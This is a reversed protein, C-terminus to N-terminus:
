YANGVSRNGSRELDYAGFTGVYYGFQYVPRMGHAYALNNLFGLAVDQPSIKVDCGITLHLHDATIGAKSLLLHKKAAVALVMDHTRRMVEYGCYQWRDAHVLVPHLNYIFQGHASYRIRSLDIRADNIQWRAIREQVRPDAMRHHGLQQEVYKEIVKCSASGVSELRYNRRFARPHGARLLYQLRGKVSRVIEPPAVSPRTSLLLQVVQPSRQHCELVRVGDAETAERLAASWHEPSPM